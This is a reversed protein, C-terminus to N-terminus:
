RVRRLVVLATRQLWHCLQSARLWTRRSIAGHRLLMTAVTLLRTAIASLLWALMRGLRERWSPGPPQSAGRRARPGRGLAGGQPATQRFALAVRYRWSLVM